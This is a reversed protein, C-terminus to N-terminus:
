FIRGWNLGLEFCNWYFEWHYLKTNFSFSGLTLTLSSILLSLWIKLFVFLSSSKGTLHLDTIFHLLLQFQKPSIPDNIFIDFPYSPIYTYKYIKKSFFTFKQSSISYFLKCTYLFIYVLINTATSNIIHLAALLSFSFKSNKFTFFFDKFPIVICSWLCDLPM